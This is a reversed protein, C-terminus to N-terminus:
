EDGDTWAKFQYQSPFLVRGQLFPDNIVRVRKPTESGAVLDLVTAQYCKEEFVIALTRGINSPSTTLTM